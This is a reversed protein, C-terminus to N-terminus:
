FNPTYAGFVVVSVITPDTPTFSSNATEITVSNTTESLVAQAGLLNSSINYCNTAQTLTQGYQITYNGASNRTVTSVGYSQIIAGTTGNFRVWALPSTQANNGASGFVFSNVGNLWAATIPTNQNYDQYNRSPM